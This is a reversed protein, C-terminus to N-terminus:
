IRVDPHGRKVYAAYMASSVTNDVKRYNGDAYFRNIEQHGPAGAYWHIGICDEHLTPYNNQHFALGSYYGWEYDKAFPFVIKDPLRKICVDQHDWCINKFTGVSKEICITGASEYVDKDVNKLSAQYIKEHIRNPQSIMFSVPMYNPKPWGEFCVIGFETHKFRDYNFPRTFIIDTDAVIGGKRALIYWALIDSTHVDSIDLVAIEPYEEELYEIKIDLRDLGHSFDQLEDLMFDQTEAWDYKVKGLPQKRKVLIMEWDPNHARFTYFTMYRLFSMAENGWYFYARKPLTM